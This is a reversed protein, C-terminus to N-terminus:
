GERAYDSKKAMKVEENIILLKAQGDKFFVHGDKFAGHDDELIRALHKIGPSSPLAGM